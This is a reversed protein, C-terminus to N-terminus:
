ASQIIGLVLLRTSMAAKSVQFHNALHTVLGAETIGDDDGLLQAVQEQIWPEPMLLNAAFRNAEIEETFSGESSAADRRNVRFAASGDLFVEGEHLLDHGIEHAITFRQRTPPHSANVTITKDFGDRVLMGSISDDGHDLYHIEIGLKSAITEVLVPATTIKLRKLLATAEDAIASSNM